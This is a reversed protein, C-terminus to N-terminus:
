RTVWWAKLPTIDIFNELVKYDNSQIAQLVAMAVSSRRLLNAFQKKEKGSLASLGKEYFNVIKENEFRLLGDMKETTKWQFFDTTQLDFQHLEDQAIYFINQRVFARMRQIFNVLEIVIAFPYIKEVEFEESTLCSAILLERVGGTRMIHVVVDEFKEFQPAALNQEMGDIVDMLGLPNLYGEITEQLCIAVPHDPRGENIKIIQDRWWNMKTQAVNLDVYNLTIDEIEKYFAFIATVLKRQAPPLKRLSFYLASPYAAVKQKCYKEPTM